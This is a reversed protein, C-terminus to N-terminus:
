KKSSTGSTDLRTKTDPDLLKTCFKTLFIERSRFFDMDKLAYKTRPETSYRTM